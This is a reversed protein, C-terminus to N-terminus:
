IQEKIIEKKKVLDCNYCLADVPCSDICMGCRICEPSNQDERVDIDMKCAKKCKGCSICKDRDFNLNVLAIKNFLGYIAGLPCIWKCFPRFTLISLLITVLLIMFKLNFLKGLGARISPNLISLPIAGELVGQPCIYKCFYPNGMGLSNTILLPLAIVMVLLIIYKLYTLIKLRATSFKKSPIKYLLEQFLGFPCMFGCIFRALTVSFFILIGVVYYSFKFKSSGIVSQLAGIPCSGAAGPCSYCNLGPLCFAKTKGTYIQGTLFNKLHLNSLISALGQLLVRKATLFKTFKMDVLGWM